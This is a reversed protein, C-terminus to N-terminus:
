PAEPGVDATTLPRRLVPATSLEDAGIDATTRPQGDIDDVVFPFYAPDAVDVAPSSATLRMLGGEAAMTPNVLNRTFFTNGPLALTLQTLGGSV